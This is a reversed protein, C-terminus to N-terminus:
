LIDTNLIHNEGNTRLTFKWKKMFRSSFHKNNQHTQQQIACLLRMELEHYTGQSEVSLKVENEM